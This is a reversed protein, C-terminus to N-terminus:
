SVPLDRFKSSVSARLYAGFHVKKGPHEVEEAKIDDFVRRNREVYVVQIILM